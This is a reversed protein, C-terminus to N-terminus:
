EHGLIRSLPGPREVTVYPDLLPVLRSVSADTGFLHVRYCRVGVSRWWAALRRQGSRVGLREEAEPSIDFLLRWGTIGSYRYMPRQIDRWPLPEIHLLPDLLGERSVTIAPEGAKLRRYVHWLWWLGVAAFGADILLFFLRAAIGFETSFIGGVFVPAQAVLVFALLAMGILKYKRLHFATAGHPLQTPM